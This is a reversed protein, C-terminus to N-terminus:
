KGGAHPKKGEVPKAVNPDSVPGGKEPASTPKPQVHPEAAVSSDTAGVDAANATAADQKVKKEARRKKLEEKRSAELRRGEAIMHSAKEFDSRDKEFERAAAKKAKELLKLFYPEKVDARLHEPIPVRIVAEKDVKPRPM